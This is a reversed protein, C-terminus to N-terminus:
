SYIEPLYLINAKVYTLLFKEYSIKGLNPRSLIVTQDDTLVCANSPFSLTVVPSLVSDNHMFSLRLGQTNKFIAESVVTMNCTFTGLFLLPVTLEQFESEVSVGEKSCDILLRFILKVETLSEVSDKMVDQYVFPHLISLIFLCRPSNFVLQAAPSLSNHDAAHLGAPPWDSSNHGPTLRKM